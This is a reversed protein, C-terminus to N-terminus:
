EKSLQGQIMCLKTQMAYKRVLMCMCEIKIWINRDLFSNAALPWNSVDLSMKRYNYMSSVVRSLLPDWPILPCGRVGLHIKIILFQGSRSTSVALISLSYMKSLVKIQWHRRWGAFTLFLPKKEYVLSSMFNYRCLGKVSTQGIM